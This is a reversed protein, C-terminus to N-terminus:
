VLLVSCIAETIQLEESVVTAVTDFSEPLLLPMVFSEVFLPTTKPIAGPVAIKVAQAPVIQPEVVMVMPAGPPLRLNESVPDGRLRVVAAPSVALNEIVTVGCVPNLWIKMNDQPGSGMAIRDAM